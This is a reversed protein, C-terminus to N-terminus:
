VSVGLTHCYTKADWIERPKSRMRLLIGNERFPKEWDAGYYDRYADVVRQAAEKESSVGDLIKTASTEGCGRGGRLAYKQKTNVGIGQLGAICDTPDGKLMQWWFHVGAEVDTLWFIDEDKGYNYHWGPIQNLDKDVHCIVVDMAERDRKAKAKMYVPWAAYAVGDEAEEGNCMTIYDRYEEMFFSLVDYFALPKEGRNGKYPLITAYEKRYNGKGGVYLHLGSCWEKTAVKEIQLKLIHYAHELPETLIVEKTVEFHEELYGRAEDTKLWTRFATINDWTKVYRKNIKHTTTVPSKQILAAAQYIMTDADVLALKKKM